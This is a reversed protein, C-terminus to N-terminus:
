GSFARPSALRAHIGGDAVLNAGNIYSARSSLLFVITHAIEDPRGLRGQPIQAEFGPRRGPFEDIWGSLGPTDIPGPSVCNVRIGQRANEVAANRTLSIIGAKAAGYASLGPEAGLGAGSSINVIAGGGTQKMEGIAAQCGHFVSGLTVAQVREWDAEALDALFGGGSWAANNVWGSLGGFESRCIEALSKHTASLAVDGSVHAAQGGSEVIVSATDAVADTDIDGLMLSAGESACVYATAQGIGSGAGTIVVAQGALLGTIPVSPNNKPRLTM